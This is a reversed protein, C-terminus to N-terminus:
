FDLCKTIHLLLSLIGGTFTFKKECLSEGCGFSKLAVLNILKLSESVLFTARPVFEEFLNGVEMLEEVSEILKVERTKLISYKQQLVRVVLDFLSVWADWSTMQEARM